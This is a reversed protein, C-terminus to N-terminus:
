GSAVAWRILIGDEEDTRAGIREFGNRELVIHSAPNDVATEARVSSVRPDSKAWVLVERVPQTATGRGRCSAAVGYGIEATGDATPAKVLSCMGVVQDREVILWAAPAFDQRITQALARLMAIVEPAEINGEIPTLSGIDRGDCLAVFQADDAALITTLGM